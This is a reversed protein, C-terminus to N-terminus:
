SQRGSQADAPTGASPGRRQANGVAGVGEERRAWPGPIADHERCANPPFAGCATPRGGQRRTSRRQALDQPARAGAAAGPVLWGDGQCAISVYAAIERQRPVRRHGLCNVSFSAVRGVARPHRSEPPPGQPRLACGPLDAQGRGPGGEDIQHKRCFPQSSGGASVRPGPTRLRSQGTAPFPQPELVAGPIVEGQRRGRAARVAAWGGRGPAPGERDAGREPAPPRSAGAGASWASTRAMSCSTPDWPMTPATSSGWVTLTGTAVPVSRGGDSVTLASGPLRYLYATGSAGPPQRDARRGGGVASSRSRGAGGRLRARTPANWVVGRSARARSRLARAGVVHRAEGGGLGSGSGSGIVWAWHGVGGSGRGPGEQGNNVKRGASVVMAAAPSASARASPRAASPARGPRPLRRGGRHAAPAPAAHAAAGRGAATGRRM